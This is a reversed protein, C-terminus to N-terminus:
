KQPKAEAEDPFREAFKAELERLDMQWRTQIDPNEATRIAEHLGLIGRKMEVWLLSEIDETMNAM